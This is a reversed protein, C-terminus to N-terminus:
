VVGDVYKFGPKGAFEHLKDSVDKWYEEGEDTKAWNFALTLARIVNLLDCPFKPNQVCALESNRAYDAAKLMAEELGYAGPVYDESTDCEICRQFLAATHDFVNADPAPPIVVQTGLAVLDDYLDEYYVHGELTNGWSFATMLIGALEKASFDRRMYLHKHPQRCNAEASANYLARYDALTFGPSGREALFLAARVFIDEPKDVPEDAPEDVPELFEEQAREFMTAQALADIAVQAEESTLQVRHSAADYLFFKNKGYREVRIGADSYISFNFM